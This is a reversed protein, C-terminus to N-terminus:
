LERRARPENETRVTRVNKQAHTDCPQKVCAEKAVRKM